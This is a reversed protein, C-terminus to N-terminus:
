QHISAWWVVAIVLIFLLLTIIVGPLRTNHQNNYDYAQSLDPPNDERNKQNIREQMQAVVREQLESRENKQNIFLGM